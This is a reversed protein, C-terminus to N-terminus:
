LRKFFKKVSSFLSDESETVPKTYVPEPDPKDNSEPQTFLHNTQTAAQGFRERPPTLPVFAGDRNYFGSDFARRNYTSSENYETAVLYLHEDTRLQNSSTHEPNPELPSLTPPAPISIVTPPHASSEEQGETEELEESEEDMTFDFLIENPSEIKEETSSEDEDLFQPLTGENEEEEEDFTFLQFTTAEDMELKGAPSESTTEVEMRVSEEPIPSEKFPLSFDFLPLDESVKEECEEPQKLSPYEEMFSDSQETNEDSEEMSEEGFDFLDMIPVDTSDGNEEESVPLSFDEPNEMEEDILLVDDPQVDWEVEEDDVIVWDGGVSEPEPRGEELHPREPEIEQSVENSLDESTIEEELAAVPVPDTLDSECEPTPLVPVPSDSDQKEPLPYSMPSSEVSVEKAYQEEMFQDMKRWLAARQIPVHIIEHVGAEWFEQDQRERSSLVAIIKLNPYESLIRRILLAGDEDDLDPNLFLLHPRHKRLAYEGEKANTATASVMLEFREEPKALIAKKTLDMILPKPEILVIRITEKM